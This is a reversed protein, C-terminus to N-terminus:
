ICPFQQRFIYQCLISHKGQVRGPLNLDTIATVGAIWDTALLTNQSMYFERVLIVGDGRVFLMEM